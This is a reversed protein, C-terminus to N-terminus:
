SKRYRRCDTAPYSQPILGLKKAIAKAVNDVYAEHQARVISGKQAKDYGVQAALRKMTQTAHLVEHIVVDPTALLSRLEDNLQSRIIPLRDSAAKEVLGQM